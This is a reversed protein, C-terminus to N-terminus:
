ESLAWQIRPRPLGDLSDWGEGQAADKLRREAELTVDDLRIGIFSPQFPGLYSIARQLQIRAGTLNHRELHLFGVALKILGHYFLRLPYETHQWVEELTEHAQWYQGLNFEELGQYFERPPAPASAVLREIGEARLRALWAADQRRRAGPIVTPSLLNKDWVVKTGETTDNYAAIYAFAM